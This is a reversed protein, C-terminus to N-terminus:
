INLSDIFLNRRLQSTGTSGGLQRFADSRKIAVGGAKGTQMAANQSTTRPNMQKQLELNKVYQEQARKEAELTAKQQAAMDVERQQGATMYTYNDANKTFWDAAGSGM